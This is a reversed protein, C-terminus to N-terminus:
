PSGSSIIVAHSINMYPQQPSAFSLFSCQQFCTSVIFINHKKRLIYIYLYINCYIVCIPIFIYM